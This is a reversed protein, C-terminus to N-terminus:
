VGTVRRFAQAPIAVVSKDAFYFLVLGPAVAYCGEHTTGGEKWTARMPLNSVAPLTCKEDTLTVVVRDDGATAVPAAHAGIFYGLLLVLAAASLLEALAGGHQFPMLPVGVPLDRQPRIRRRDLVMYLAFGVVLATYVHQHWWEPEAFPLFILALGGVGLLGYAFRYCHRTRHGMSSWALVACVSIAGGAIMQPLVAVVDLLRM